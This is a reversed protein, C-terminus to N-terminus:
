AIAMPGTTGTVTWGSGAREVVYTLWTAGLCAVFGYVGVEVREDDGRPPALTILMGGGKVQQCGSKTEVVRARDPVFSLPAVDALAEILQPQGTIPGATPGPEPKKPTMPAAATPDTRDLVYVVPFRHGGFSDEGSTLYRRLVAAFIAADRGGAPDTTPAAATTPIAGAADPRQACGAAALLVVCILLIKRAM